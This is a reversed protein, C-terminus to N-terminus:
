LITKKWGHENEFYLLPILKEERDNLNIIKSQFRIM